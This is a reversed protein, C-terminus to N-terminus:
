AKNQTYQAYMYCIGINPPVNKRDGKRWENIVVDTNAALRMSVYCTKTWQEKRAPRHQTIIDARRGHYQSEVSNSIPGLGRGFMHVRPRVNVSIESTQSKTTERYM